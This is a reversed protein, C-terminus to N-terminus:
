VCSEKWPQDESLCVTAEDVNGEKGFQHDALGPYIATWIPSNRFSPNCPHAQLKQRGSWIMAGGMAQIALRHLM